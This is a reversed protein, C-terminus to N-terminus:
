VGARSPAAGAEPLEAHRGSARVRLDDVLIRRLELKFGFERQLPSAPAPFSHSSICRPLTCLCLLCLDIGQRHAQEGRLM